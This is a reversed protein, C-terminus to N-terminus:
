YKRKRRREFDYIHKGPLTRPMNAIIKSLLNLLNENGLSNPIGGGGGELDACSLTCQGIIQDPYEESTTFLGSLRILSLTLLVLINM